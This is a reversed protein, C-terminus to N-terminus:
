QLAYLHVIGCQVVDITQNDTCMFKLTFNLTSLFIRKHNIRLQYCRRFAVMIQGNFGNPVFKHDTFMQYKLFPFYYCVSNLSYHQNISLLHPMALGPWGLGEKPATCRVIKLQPKGFTNLSQIICQLYFNLPNNGIYDCDNIYVVINPSQQM